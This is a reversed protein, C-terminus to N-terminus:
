CSLTDYEEQTEFRDHIPIPRTTTEGLLDGWIGNSTYAFNGGFFPGLKHKPHMVPEIYYHKEGWLMRKNLRCVDSPRVRRKLCWQAIESKTAEAPFVWIEDLRGSIGHNSSDYGENVYPIHKYISLNVPRM